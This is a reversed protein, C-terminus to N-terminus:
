KCFLNKISGPLVSADMKGDTLLNFDAQLTLTDGNLLYKINSFGLTGGGTTARILKKKEEAEAYESNFFRVLGDTVQYADGQDVKIENNKQHGIYKVFPQYYAVPKENPQMLFRDTIEVQKKEDSKLSLQHYAGVDFVQIIRGSRDTSSEVGDLKLTQKDKKFTITRNVGRFVTGATTVEKTDIFTAAIKGSMERKYKDGCKSAHAPNVAFTLMLALVTKKM